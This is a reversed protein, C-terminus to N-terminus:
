AHSPKNVKFSKAWSKLWATDQKFDSPEPIGKAYKILDSHLLVQQMSSLDSQSLHHTASLSEIIEESTLEGAPIDTKKYIFRRTHENLPTYVEKWKSPNNGYFNEIEEIKALFWDNPDEEFWQDVIIKKQRKKWWKFIFYLALCLGLFILIYPLFDWFNRKEEWIPKIPQIKTTDSITPEFIEIMLSDLTSVLEKGNYQYIHNQGPLYFKGTKYFAIHFKKKFIKSHDTSYVTGEEQGLIEFDRNKLFSFTDLGQTSVEPDSSVVLEPNIVDGLLGKLTDSKWEMTMQAQALISSLVMGLVLIWPKFGRGPITKKINRNNLM